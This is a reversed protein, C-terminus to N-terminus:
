KENLITILKNEINTAEVNEDTNEVLINFLEWSRFIVIASSSKGFRGGRGILQYLTNRTSIPTLNEHIDIATLNINTGYTISPDSLIFKFLDKTKM